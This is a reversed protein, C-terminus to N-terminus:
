DWGFWWGLLEECISKQGARRLQESEDGYLLIDKEELGGSSSAFGNNNSNSTGTTVPVMQTFLVQTGTRESASGNTLPLYETPATSEATATTTAVSAHFLSQRKQPSLREVGCFVPGVLEIPRHSLAKEAELRSQYQIAIWNSTATVGGHRHIVRGFSDFLLVLEEKQSQTSFGYVLVWANDEELDYYPMLSTSLSSAASNSPKIATAGALTSPPHLIGSNNNSHGNSTSSAHNLLHNEPASSM